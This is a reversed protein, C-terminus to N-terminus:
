LPFQSPQDLRLNHVLSTHWWLCDIGKLMRQDLVRGILRQQAAGALLVVLADRVHQRRAKRLGSLRLGFHYRLVVGLGPQALLRHAGPLPSSLLRKLTRGMQLRDTVEGPPQRHEGGEGLRGHPDLLFEVHVDEQPGREDGRLAM